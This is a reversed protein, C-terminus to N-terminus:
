TLNANLEKLDKDRRDTDLIGRLKFEVENKIEIMNKLEDQM